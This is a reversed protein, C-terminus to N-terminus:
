LVITARFPSLCCETKAPDTAPLPLVLAQRVSRKAWLAISRSRVITCGWARQDSTFQRRRAVDM